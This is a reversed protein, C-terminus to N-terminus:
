FDMRKKMMERHGGLARKKHVQSGPLSRKRAKCRQTSAPSAASSPASPKENSSQDKSGSDPKSSSSNSGSNSDGTFSNAADTSGSNQSTNSSSSSSGSSSGSSAAGSSSGSNSSPKDNNNSSSSSGGSVLNAITPGIDKFVNSSYVNFNALYGDTEYLSGAKTGGPLGESGGDVVEVQVCGVYLQPGGGSSKPSHVASLENRILYQGNKLGQPITVTWTSSEQVLKAIGWLGQEKPYYPEPKGDMANRLESSVSQSKDLGFEALKVWDANAADFKSCEGNCSAIYDTVPGMAHPFPNKGKTNGTGPKNLLEGTAGEWYIQLQSGASVKITKPAPGAGECAMKSNDNFDWYNLYAPSAASFMKRIATQSNVSDGDYYINPGANYKGNAMVGGIQGHAEVVPLLHALLGLALSVSVASLMQSKNSINKFNRSAALCIFSYTCHIGLLGAFLPHVVRKNSPLFPSPLSIKYNM